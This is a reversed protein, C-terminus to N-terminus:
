CDAHWFTGKALSLPNPSQGGGLGNLVTFNESLGVRQRGGVPSWSAGTVGALATKLGQGPREFGEPIGGGDPEVPPDSGRRRWLANILLLNFLHRHHGPNAHTTRRCSDAHTFFESLQAGRLRLAAIAPSGNGPRFGQRRGIRSQLSSEYPVHGIPASRRKKSRVGKDARSRRDPRYQEPPNRLFGARDGTGQSGLAGLPTRVVASPRVAQGGALFGFAGGSFRANGM